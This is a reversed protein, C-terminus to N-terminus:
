AYQACYDTCDLFLLLIINYVHSCKSYKCNVTKSIVIFLHLETVDHCWESAAYVHHRHLLQKCVGKSKVKNTHQMTIKQEKTCICKIIVTEM